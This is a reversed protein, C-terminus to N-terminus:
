QRGKPARGKQPFYRFNETRIVPESITMRADSYPFFSSSKSLQSYSSFRLVLATLMVVRSACLWAWLSNILGFWRLSVVSVENIVYVHNKGTFLPSFDKIPEIQECWVWLGLNVQTQARIELNETRWVRKENWFFFLNFSNKLNWHEFTFSQFKFHQFTRSYQEYHQLGLAGHKFKKTFDEQHSIHIMLNFWLFLIEVGLEFFERKLSSIGNKKSIKWLM